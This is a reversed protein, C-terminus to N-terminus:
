PHGGGSAALAVLRLVEGVSWAQAICGVARHPPDGEFIEGLTGVGGDLLRAEIGRLGARVAAVDGGLKVHAEWYPGLLWPWVAGQHYAADRAHQDGSYSGIYRPDRPALTRLGVPTLLHTRVAGLVQRARGEDLLPHPLALAIVQNPRLSADDGEAGDLVDYCYGKAEHWFRRAFSACAQSAVREYVAMSRHSRRGWETVLRVANYWLANVEVPKGMRPTVAQGGVRADMWTLARGEEGAALLADADVHIGCRTGALHCRMVEILAPLLEEVLSQDKTAVDYAHVALVWWLTADVSGYEPASGDDPFRNPIMGGDLYRACTTLVSRALDGRGTALCLGPLSIMTDRGWDGFWPYGAIVTTGQPPRAVLFQDAALALRQGLKSRGTAVRRVRARLAAERGRIAAASTEWRWSSHDEPEATALLAVTAGPELHFWLRGARYLDEEDDLGREREARHLFRWWWEGTAEGQPRPVGRLRLAPLGDRMQVQLGDALPVLVPRWNPDGRTQQHFDRAACLPALALDVAPAGEDLRYTMVTTNRGQEMWIRRELRVGQLNFRFVPATGEWEVAELWRWGQPHLTGDWFEHTSLARMGDPLAVEEVLGALLVARRAPPELAAVLLGHYRRTNAGLLSGSAYGGLGNTVLWERALAREPDHM